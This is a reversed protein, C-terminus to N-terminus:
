EYLGGREWLEEPITFHIDGGPAQEGTLIFDALGMVERATPKIQDGDTNKIMIFVRPVVINRLSNSECLILSDQPIGSRFAAYAEQLSDKYSRIWYVRACGAHLLRVTDKTVNQGDEIRIDYDGSLSTCTSCGEEGRPCKARRDAITTVKLGILEGTGSYAEILQEALSTKGSNRGTAGIMIMNKDELM